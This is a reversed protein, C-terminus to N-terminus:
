PQVEIYGIADGENDFWCVQGNLMGINAIVTDGAVIITGTITIEDEKPITLQRRKYGLDILLNM